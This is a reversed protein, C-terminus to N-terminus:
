NERVPDLWVFAGCNQKTPSICYFLVPVCVCVRIYMCSYLNHIIFYIIYIYSKSYGNAIICITQKNLNLQEYVIYLWDGSNKLKHVSVAMSCYRGKGGGLLWWKAETQSLQLCKRCKQTKIIVYHGGPEDTTHARGNRDRIGQGTRRM